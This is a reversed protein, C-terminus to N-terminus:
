PLHTNDLSSSSLVTRSLLGVPMFGDFQTAVVMKGLRLQDKAIASKCTKCSSRGSKAYEAKWPKPPTPCAM